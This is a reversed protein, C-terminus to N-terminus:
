SFGTQHTLCEHLKAASCKPCSVRGSSSVSSADKSIQALTGKRGLAEVRGEELRELSTAAAFAALTARRLEELQVELTM